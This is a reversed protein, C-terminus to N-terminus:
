KSWIMPRSFLRPLYPCGSSGIVSLPGRTHRLALRPLEFGREHAKFLRVHQGIHVLQGGLRQGLLLFVLLLGGLQLFLQVPQPCVVIQQHFLGALHAVLEGPFFLPGNVGFRAGLSQGFLKQVQLFRGICVFVAQEGLFLFRHHQFAVVLAQGLQKGGALLLDLRGAGLCLLGFLCSRLLPLLGGPSLLLQFALLGAPQFLLPGPVRPLQLALLLSRLAFHFQALGVQRLLRAPFFLLQLLARLLDRVRHQQQAALQVLHVPLDGLGGLLQM